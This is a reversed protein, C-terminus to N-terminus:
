EEIKFWDKLVEIMAHDGFSTQSPINSHCSSREFRGEADGYTRSKITGCLYEETGFKDVLVSENWDKGYPPVAVTTGRSIISNKWSEAAARGTDDNDPSVVVRRYYSIYNLWDPLGTGQVSVAPYGMVELSLADIPSECIILPDAIIAAKSSLFLGHQSGKATCVKSHGEQSNIRRGQCGILNGMWDRIGFMISPEGYFFPHYRVDPCWFDIGRSRLYQDEPFMKWSSAEWIEKWENSKDEKKQLVVPSNSSQINLKGKRKCRHCFYAGTDPNVSLSRHDECVEKEGCKEFPCCYRFNGKAVGVPDHSLLAKWTLRTM